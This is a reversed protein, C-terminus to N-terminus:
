KGLLEDRKTRKDRWAREARRCEPCFSVRAWKEEKVVCGGLVVSNANPFLEASGSLYEKDPYGYKIIVRDDELTLHHLECTKGPTRLDLEMPPKENCGICLLLMGAVCITRM